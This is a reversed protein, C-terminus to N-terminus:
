KKRKKERLKKERASKSAHILKNNFYTGLDINTPNLNTPIDDRVRIVRKGTPLINITLEVVDFEVPEVAISDDRFYFINIPRM